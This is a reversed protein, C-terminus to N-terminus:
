RGRLLDRLTVVLLTGVILFPLLHPIQEITM